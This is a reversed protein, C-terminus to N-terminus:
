ESKCIPREHDSGPRGVRGHRRGSMVAPALPLTPAGEALSARGRALINRAANVDRDHTAGCDSCTWERIGLGDMGQPSGDPKSAGCSSCARTTGHEAVCVMVSDRVIAKYSLLIKFKSWSADYAAKAIHTRGFRLSSVDGVFVAKSRDAILRSLKHLRDARARAIKRHMRGVRKKKRAVQARAIRDEIKAFHHPNEFKEGTSFTAIYKLGLDVGLEEGGNSIRYGPIEVIINIYWNGCTDQAFCGFKIIGTAPPSRHLWCKFRRKLYIFGDRDQKIADSKFPVWGLSKRGRYRLNRRRSQERCTAYAECVAQITHSQLDLLKSSGAVLHNLDFARPWNQNHRLAHRQADECYNWVQNVAEAM